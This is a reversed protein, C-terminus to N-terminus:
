ASRDERPRPDAETRPPLDHRLAHHRRESHEDYEGTRDGRCACTVAIVIAERVTPLSAVGQGGVDARRGCIGVAIPQGVALLVPQTRIRTTRVGVAIPERVPDLDAGAGVRALPGATRHRRRDLLCLGDEGRRRRGLRGRLRRPGRLRRLCRRRRCRRGRRGRGRGRGGSGGRRGGGRRSGAGRGRRPRRRIAVSGRGAGCRQGRLERGGRWSLHDAERGTIVAVNRAPALDPSTVTLAASPATGRIASLHAGACFTRRSLTVTVLASRDPAVRFTM